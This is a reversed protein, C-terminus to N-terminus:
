AQALRTLLSLIPGDGLVAAALGGLALAAVLPIAVRGREGQSALTPPDGSLGCDESAPHPFVLWMRRHSRAVEAASAMCGALCGALLAESALLAAAAPISYLVALIGPPIFSWNPLGLGALGAFALAAADAGGLMCLRYLLAAAISPALSAAALLVATEMPLGKSYLGYAALGPAAPLAVAWLLPEVERHRLDSLGALGLVMIFYFTALSGTFDQTM